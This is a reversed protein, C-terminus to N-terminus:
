VGGHDTQWLEVTAGAVPQGALDRVVGSLLFLTGAALTTAGAVRTLDSDRNAPSLAPLTNRANFPYFPGETLEPTRTAAALACASGALAVVALRVRRGRPFTLLAPFIM